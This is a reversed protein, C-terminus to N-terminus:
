VVSKRDLRTTFFGSAPNGVIDVTAGRLRVGGTPTAVGLNASTGFVADGELRLTDRVAVDIGADPPPAGDSLVSAFVNARASAVLRGGRIAVAGGGAGSADVTGGALTVAGLREFGALDPAGAGPLPGATTGAAAVAALVVRGGAARLTAGSFTLDGGVMSLSAGAPVTLTAGTVAIGAPLDDAFRLGIPEVVQMKNEFEELAIAFTGKEALPTDMAFEIGHGLRIANATSLHFDGDTELRGNPGVSIGNPNFVYLNAGPYDRTHLTGDITTPSGGSVRTLINAVASEGTFRATEGAAVDLRTLGHFLNTGRVLGLDETIRYEGNVLNLAGSKESVVQSAAPFALATALFIWARRPSGGSAGVRGSM